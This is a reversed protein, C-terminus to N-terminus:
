LLKFDWTVNRRIVRAPNGAAACNQPIDKTVISGAGIVAGSGINVGKLVLCRQGIWVRDGIAINKAPNIRVRTELDIISHMDSISVDTDSAFLCGDGVTLSGPEHLLLRVLGTFGAMRGIRLETNKSAYVFLNHASVHEAIHVSADGTLHLNVGVKFVPSKIVVHNGNGDLTIRGSGNAIIKQDIDVVNNSGNDVITIPM